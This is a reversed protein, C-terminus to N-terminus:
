FLIVLAIVALLSCFGHFYPSRFKISAALFIMAIVSAGLTISSTSTPSDALLRKDLEYILFLGFFSLFCLNLPMLYHETAKKATKM